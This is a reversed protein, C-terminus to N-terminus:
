PNGDGHANTDSYPALHEAQIVIEHANPQHTYKLQELSMTSIKASGTRLSQRDKYRRKNRHSLDSPQM